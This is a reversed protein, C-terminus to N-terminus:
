APGAPAVSGALETLREPTYRDALDGARGAGIGGILNHAFAAAIDEPGLPGDPRFWTWAYNCMGFVQLATIEPDLERFHARDVGRRLIETLLQFYADRRARVDALEDSAAFRTFERLFAITPARDDRHARLLCFVMVALQDASDDLGAVVARAEVLRRGIYQAHSLGLMRDKTGFHHVITGKSVGVQEAVASFSTEDYGREAVMAVFADLIRDRSSPRPERRADV